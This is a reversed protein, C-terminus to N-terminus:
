DSRGVLDSPSRAVSRITRAEAVFRYGRGRVNRITHQSTGDDGVARRVEKVRTTLNAESVFRHGWVGDLLEIKSVVRERHELLCCLLDFAQPELPAAQGRHGLRRAAPEAEYDGFRWM